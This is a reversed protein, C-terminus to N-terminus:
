EGPAQCRSCYLCGPHNKRRFREFRSQLQEVAVKTQHESQQLAAAKSQIETRDKQLQALSDREAALEQQLKQIEAKFSALLENRKSEEQKLEAIQKRQIVSEKQLESMVDEHKRGDRLSSLKNSMAHLQAVRETLERQLRDQDSRAKLLEAERFSLERRLSSVTGTSIMYDKRITQLEQALEEKSREPQSELQSPCDGENGASEVEM